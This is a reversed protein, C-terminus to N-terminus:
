ACGTSGATRAPHQHPLSGDPHLLTPVSHRHGGRQEETVKDAQKLSPRVASPPMALPYPHLSCLSMVYEGLEVPPVSCGEDGWGTLERHRQDCVSAM